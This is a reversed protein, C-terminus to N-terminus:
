LVDGTCLFTVPIFSSCFYGFLTCIMGWSLGLKSYIPLVCVM